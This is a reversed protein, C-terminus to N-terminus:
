SLVVPLTPVTPLLTQWIGQKFMLPSEGRGGPPIDLQNAGRSDSVGFGVGWQRVAEQVEM